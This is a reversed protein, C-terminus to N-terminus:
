GAFTVKALLAATGLAGYLACIRFYSGVFNRKARIPKAKKMAETFLWDDIEFPSGRRKVPEVPEPAVYGPQISPHAFTWRLEAAELHQDYNFRRAPDSLEDYAVNLARMAEGAEASANKDPHWKQSLAKYAARIVEPPANRAVSLTEYHSHVNM